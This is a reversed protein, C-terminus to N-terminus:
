LYPGLDGTYLFVEGFNVKAGSIMRIIVQANAPPFIGAESNSLLRFGALARIPFFEESYKVEPM